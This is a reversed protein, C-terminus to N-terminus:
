SVVGSTQWTQKLFDFIAPLVVSVGGVVVLWWLGGGVVVMAGLCHNLRVGGGGGGVAVAVAAESSSSSIKSRSSSRSSSCLYLWCLTPPEREARSVLESSCPRFFM